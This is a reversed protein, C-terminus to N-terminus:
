KAYKTLEKIEDEEFWPINYATIEVPDSLPLVLDEDRSGVASTM